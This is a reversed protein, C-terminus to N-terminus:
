LKKSSLHTFDNMDLGTLATVLDSGLEPFDDRIFVSNVWSTGVVSVGVKLQFSDVNIEVFGGTAAIDWSGDKHIKLWTGHVGDTSAGETLKEAWVVEDESLRTGTVVPSLAMVGLTSFENVGDEVDNSLFSFTAIAELAILDGV